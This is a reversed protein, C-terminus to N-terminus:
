YRPTVSASASAGGIIAIAILRSTTHPKRKRESRQIYLLITFSDLLLSQHKKRVACAWARLLSPTLKWAGVDLSQTAGKAKSADAWDVTDPRSFQVVAAQGGGGESSSCSGECSLRILRNRRSTFLETM